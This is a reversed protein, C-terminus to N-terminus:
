CDVPGATRLATPCGLNYSKRPAIREVPIMRKWLLQRACGTAVSFFCAFFLHNRGNIIVLYAEGQRQNRCGAEEFTAGVGHRVYGGPVNPVRNMRPSFLSRFQEPQCASVGVIQSSVVGVGMVVRLMKCFRVLGPHKSWRSIRNTSSPTESLSPPVADCAAPIAIYYEMDLCCPTLYTHFCCLFSGFLLRTCSLYLLMYRWSVTFGGAIAEAREPSHASLLPNTHNLHILVVEAKVGSLEAITDQVIPHSVQSFLRRFTSVLFVPPSRLSRGDVIPEAPCQSRSHLLLSSGCYNKSHRWARKDLM